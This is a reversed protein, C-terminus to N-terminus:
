GGLFGLKGGRDGATRLSLGADRERALIAPIALSVLLSHAM